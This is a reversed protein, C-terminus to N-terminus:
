QGKDMSSMGNLEYRAPTEKDNIWLVREDARTYPHLVSHKPDQKTYLSVAPLIRSLVATRKNLPTVISAYFLLM